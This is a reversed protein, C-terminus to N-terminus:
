LKAEMMARVALERLRKKREGDSEARDLKELFNRFLDDHLVARIDRFTFEPEAARCGASLRRVEAALATEDLGRSGDIYGAVTLLLRSQPHLNKLARRVQEVPDTGSFPDLKVLRAEYHFTDLPYERPPGGAEFLNALRRGTERRTVSAPSGPYVFYRERGNQRPLTWVRYSTHFHGALIYDCPLENFHALRAPMYRGSGEEGLDRRSFFADLLEGHYLLLNIQGPEMRAAMERLRLLIEAGGIPEFPLGWVTVAGCQFPQRWDDLVRASGGLYIGGTFAAYDHNGPLVLVTFPLNSFLARVRDQLNLLDAGHDFLDGSILLLSIQEAAGTDLLQQLAQWREDNYVKLHLDATHLIKM